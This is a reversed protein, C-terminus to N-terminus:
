RLFMGTGSRAVKMSSTMGVKGSLRFALLTAQQREELKSIAYCDSIGIKGDKLADQVAPICRSPSSSNADGM